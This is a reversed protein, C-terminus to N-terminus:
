IATKKWKGRRFVAILALALLSEAFVISYYVGTEGWGMPLALWWALPTEVLWFFIFNLLTPTRTDGAGNIAQSLIMGYGYFVYGASLIRLAEVGSQLTQADQTFLGILLPAGFLYLVGVTAMFLMNFFGARWVSHEAREPLRAGLNQGVLTAAANAMGWSPLITFVIVRIAITYGAAVETGILGLIGMLFIWSASAILYQGTSGAAIILLRQVIRWHPRLMFQVRLHIARGIGFLHYLQYLVGVSRGITTAVGAGILGLEPFPGWGFILVPDLILNISNAIWLARMATVADGAGRFIGNLMWLLLIPLNVTLMLRAYPVGTNMVAPDGSMVRLIDPVLFFSPLALLVSLAIAVLLAQAGVVGAARRRGEGVRRSVMATAAASLGIAVSYVITLVSETLGLATVAQHGIQAVFYADVVVFLSEMGMELIMPIALLVIARDISGRTFDLSEGRIAQLLLLRWRQWRRIFTTETSM